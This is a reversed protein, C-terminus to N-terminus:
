RWPFSISMHCLLNQLFYPWGDPETGSIKPCTRTGLVHRPYIWSMEVLDEEEKEGSNKNDVEDM